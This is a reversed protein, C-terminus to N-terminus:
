RDYLEERGYMMFNPASIRKLDGTGTFKKVPNIHFAAIQVTPYIQKLQASFDNINIDNGVSIVLAQM